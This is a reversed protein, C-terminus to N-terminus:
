FELVYGVKVTFSTGQTAISQYRFTFSGPEAPLTNSWGKVGLEVFPNSRTLVRLGYENGQEGAGTFAIVRYFGRIEGFGAQWDLRAELLSYPEEGQFRVHGISPTIEGFQYGVRLKLVNRDLNGQHFGAGLGAEAVLGPIVGGVPEHVIRATTFGSDGYGLGLRLSVGQFLSYEARSEAVGDRQQHELTLGGQNARVQVGNQNVAGDLRVGQREAQVFVQGGPRGESLGVSGGVKLRPRDRVQRELNDVRGSLDFVRRNVEGQGAQTRQDLDRVVAELASVRAQLARLGEEGRNIMTELAGVSATLEGIEERTVMQTSVQALDEALSEVNKRTEELNAKVEPFEGMAGQVIELGEKLESIALMAEEFRAQSDEALADRVRRAVDDAFALYARYLMVAVQYRTVAQQGRFTSDPFGQVIGKQYLFRIFELDPRVDRFPMQQALGVSGM